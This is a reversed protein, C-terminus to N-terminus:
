NQILKYSWTQEETGIVLWWENNYHHDGDYYYYRVVVQASDSYPKRPDCVNSAGGRPALMGTIPTVEYPFQPSSQITESADCCSDLLIEGTRSHLHVIKAYFREWTREENTIQITYESHKSSSGSIPTKTNGTPSYGEYHHNGIWSKNNDDDDLFSSSPMMRTAWKPWPEDNREDNECNFTDNGGGYLSEAFQRGAFTLGNSDMTSGEFQYKGGHLGKVVDGISSSTSSSIDWTKEVESKVMGDNKGVNFGQKNIHINTNDNGNDSSSSHLISSRYCIRSCKMYSAFGWSKPVYYILRTILYLYITKM